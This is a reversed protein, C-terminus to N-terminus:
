CQGIDNTKTAGYLDLLRTSPDFPCLRLGENFEEEILEVEIVEVSGEHDMYAVHTHEYEKFYPSPVIARM